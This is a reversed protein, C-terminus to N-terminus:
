ALPGEDSDLKDDTIQISSIFMLRSTCLIYEDMAKSTTMCPWAVLCVMISNHETLQRLSASNSICQLAQLVGADITSCKGQTALMELTHLVLGVHAPSRKYTMAQIGAEQLTDSADWVKELSSGCACLCGTQTLWM